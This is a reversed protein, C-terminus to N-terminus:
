RLSRPAVSEVDHVGHRSTPRRRPREVRKVTRRPRRTAGPGSRGRPASCIGGSGTARPRSRRRTRRAASDHARIGVGLDAEVVHTARTCATDLDPARVAPPQQVPERRADRAAAGVHVRRLEHRDVPWATSRKSSVSRLSRLSSSSAFSATAAAIRLPTVPLTAHEAAPFLPRTTSHTGMRRRADVGSSGEGIEDGVVAADHLHRRRRGIGAVRHSRAIAAIVVVRGSTSACPVVTAVFASSSCAAPATASTVLRPNASTISIAGGPGVTTTRGGRRDAAVARRRSSRNSTPPRSSADRDRARATRRDPERCRRRRRTATQRSARRGRGSGRARPRPPARPAPEVHRHEGSTEGSNRSYSRMTVVTAM